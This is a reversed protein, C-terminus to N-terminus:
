RSNCVHNSIAVFDAVGLNEARLNSDIGLALYDADNLIGKLSNRLTKRRCHFARSVVQAFHSEITARHPIGAHPVCRVFASEVRPKPYFASAPVTFLEEMCWRYQLMVSLRGYIKSGQMAVMRAVVEKQLMLHLDLICDTQKLLHFLIPTSINYPINGVVRILGADHTIQRLDVQLIDQHILHLQSKYASNAILDSDIEVVYLRDLQESLPYTLAGEGLGIELMLDDHNPRIATLIKDIVGIDRLFNQGWYKKIM